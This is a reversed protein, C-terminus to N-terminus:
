ENGNPEDRDGVNDNRYSKDMAEDQMAAEVEDLMKDYVDPPVNPMYAALVKKMVERKYTISEFGLDLAAQASNLSDIVDNIKFDWIHILSLTLVMPM